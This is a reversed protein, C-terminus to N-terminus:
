KLDHPKAYYTLQSSKIRIIPYRSTMDSEYSKTLILKHPTLFVHIVIRRIMTPSASPTWHIVGDMEGGCFRPITCFHNEYRLCLKENLKKKKRTKPSPILFSKKKKNEIKKGLAYSLHKLSFTWLLLLQTKKKITKIKLFSNKEAFVKEKRKKIIIKRWNERPPVYLYNRIDEYVSM